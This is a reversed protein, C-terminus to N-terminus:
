DIISCLLSCPQVESRLLPLLLSLFLLNALLLPDLLCWLFVFPASFGPLEFQLLVPAPRHSPYLYSLTHGEELRSYALCIELLKAVQCSDTGPRAVNANGTSGQSISQRSFKNQLLIWSFCLLLVWGFCLISRQTGGGWIYMCLLFNFKSGQDSFRQRPKM